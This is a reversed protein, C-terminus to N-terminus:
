KNSRMWLFINELFVHLSDLKMTQFKRNFVKQVICSINISFNSERKKGFENMGM